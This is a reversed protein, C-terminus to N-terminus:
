EPEPLGSACALKAQLAGSYVRSVPGTGASNGTPSATATTTAAAGPPGPPVTTSRLVTCM